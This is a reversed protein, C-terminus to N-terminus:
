SQHGHMAEWLVLKSAPAEQKRQCHGALRMRRASTKSTVRFIGADLLLMRTYCRDLAKELTTMATYFFSVKTKAPSTPAGRVPSEMGSGEESESRTRDLQGTLGLYRFDNVGKLAAGGTTTLPPHEAQINETILLGDQRM